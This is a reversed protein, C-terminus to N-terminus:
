QTNGDMPRNPLVFRFVAGGEPRNEVWIRGGHAHVFQKAIALGLGTGHLRTTFYKEFIREKLEEPVGAGDDAVSVEVADALARAELWVTGDPKQEIANTLLNQLIRELLAPDASLVLDPPLRNVVNTHMYSVLPQLAGLANDAVRALPVIWPVAALQAPTGRNQESQLLKFTMAQLQRINRQMADLMTRSRDNLQTGNSLRVVEIAQYIAALPSRLDHVLFHLREDRQKRDDVDRQEIYAAIAVAIADDLLGHIHRATQGALPQDHDEALQVIAQRLLKYEQAVERLDFGLLLRHRGHEVAAQIEQPTQRNGGRLSIVIEDILGPILDHLAPTHLHRASPLRRVERGWQAVLTQKEREILQALRTADM